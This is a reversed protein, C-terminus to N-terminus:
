RVHGRYFQNGSAPNPSVFHNTGGVLTVTGALQWQSLNTSSEINVALGSLGTIGFGFQGARLSPPQLHPPPVSTAPFGKRITNNYYDALYLIGASDV